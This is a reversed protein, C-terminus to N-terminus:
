VRLANAETITSELEPFDPGHPSLTTVHGVKRGPRPVKGYDHLRACPHRLVDRPNPMAGICNLMACGQDRLLDTAGLPLGAIARLHNEFQSTVAADITWHGTNHVRPAIENAILTEGKVFFEITLVGVHDLELLLREAHAQANRTLSHPDAPVDCRTLIGRTHTNRGIPYFATEGTLSRVAVVSTEHDFDVFGEYICPTDRILDHAEDIGKKGDKSGDKDGDIRVQGKGDYGGSRAKLIGPTGIREIADDLHEPTDIKAHPATEIASRRFLEKEELRDRAIRLSEVGPRAPTLRGVAELADLPINEFEITAVDLGDAFRALADEDDFPACIHEGLSAACPREHRDLFRFRMGLPVGALALMRGLQGAGLIGIRM